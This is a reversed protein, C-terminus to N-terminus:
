CLASVMQSGAIELRWDDAQAWFIHWRVIQALQYNRGAEDLKTELWCMDAINEHAEGLSALLAKDPFPRRESLCVKALIRPEKTKELYETWDQWTGTNSSPKIM